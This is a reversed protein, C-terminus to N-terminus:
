QMRTIGRHISVQNIQALNCFNPRERHDTDRQNLHHMLHSVIILSIAQLATHLSICVEEATTFLPQLRKGKLSHSAVGATTRVNTEGTHIRLGHVAKACPRDDQHSSAAVASNNSVKQSYCLQEVLEYYLQFQRGYSQFDFQLSLLSTSIQEKLEM